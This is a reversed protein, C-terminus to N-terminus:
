DSKNEDNMIHSFIGGAYSGPTISQRFDRDSLMSERRSDCEKIPNESPMHCISELTRSKMYKDEDTPIMSGRRSNSNRIVFEMPMQYVSELTQCNAFEQIIIKRLNLDNEIADSELYSDRKTEFSSLDEVIPDEGNEENSEGYVPEKNSSLLPHSNSKRLSLEQEQAAHFFQPQVQLPSLPVTSKCHKHKYHLKIFFVSLLINVTISIFLVISFSVLTGYECDWM